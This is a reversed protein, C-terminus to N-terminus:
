EERSGITARIAQPSIMAGGGKLQDYGATGVYSESGEGGTWAFVNNPRTDWTRTNGVGGDRWTITFRGDNHSVIGLAISGSLNSVQGDVIMEPGHSAGLMVRARVSMTGDTDTHVWTVVIRGDPL